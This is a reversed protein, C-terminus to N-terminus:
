HRGIPLISILVPLGGFVFLWFLVISGYVVINMYGLVLGVAAMAGGSEGSTRIERRAKHGSMVALIGGILPSLFWCTIGM